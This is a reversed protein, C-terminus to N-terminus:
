GDKVKRPDIKPPIQDHVTEYSNCDICQKRYFVCSWTDYEKKYECVFDKAISPEYEAELAKKVEDVSLDQAISATCYISFFFLIINHFFKM